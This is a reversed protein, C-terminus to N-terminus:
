VYKEKLIDFIESTSMQGGLDATTQGYKILEYINHELESAAKEQNLGKKLCLALSPVM